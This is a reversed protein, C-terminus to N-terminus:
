PARGITQPSTEILDAIVILRNLYTHSQEDWDVCTILSVQSNDTPEIVSMDGDDTIRSDIVQYTYINEETYLLVLEGVPLEDLHRFPGDGMGAVTVHGALATNSGLGPWSTGGMWAVEERLGTIAWTVGDFPVYKVVTDLNLVPIVIRNIESTDPGVDGPQPTVTIVPTPVPYDPLTVIPVANDPTSFEWAPQHTPSAISPQQQVIGGPNTPTLPYISIQSNPRFVGSTTVLTVFGVVFLLAGGVTLWLRFQSSRAKSWGVVMLLMLAGAVMLLIGPLMVLPKVSSEQWNLPLEGTGPLTQYVVRYSVGATKQQVANYTLIVTNTQTETRTLSSNVRVTAVITIIVGPNVDGVAVVFSHSLKNVSGATTTVTLLDLYTPFSDSVNNNTTPGTGSNGVKITFVLNSGVNAPSGSVGITIIANPTLTGTYTPSPTLTQTPSPGATGTKTPTPPTGTVTQTPSPTITHTPGFYSNNLIIPLLPDYGLQASSILRPLSIVGILLSLILLFVMVKPISKRIKLWGFRVKNM